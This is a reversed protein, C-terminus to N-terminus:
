FEGVTTNYAFDVVLRPHDHLGGSFFFQWILNIYHLHHIVYHKRM